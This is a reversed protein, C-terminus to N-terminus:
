IAEELLSLQEPKRHADAWAIRARAIAAYHEDQEIGVFGLREFACAKGTSGSGAFPDLVTGGAPTVLRCLWRMLATPKV